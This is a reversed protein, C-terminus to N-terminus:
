FQRMMSKATRVFEDDVKTSLIRTVFQSVITSTGGEVRQFLTNVSVNTSQGNLGSLYESPNTVTSIALNINAVCSDVSGTVLRISGGGYYYREHLEDISTIPFSINVFANKKYAQLYDEFTWSMMDVKLMGENLLTVYNESNLELMANYSTCLIIKNDRFTSFASSMIQRSAPFGDCIIVIEKNRNIIQLMAAEYNNLSCITSEMISNRWVVIYVGVITYHVWLISKGHIGHYQVWGFLVTSKGVGPCGTIFTNNVLVEMNLSNWLKVCEERVYVVSSNASLGASGLHGVNWM